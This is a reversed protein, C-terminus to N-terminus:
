KHPRPSHACQAHEAPGRAVVDAMGAAAAVRPAPDRCIIRGPSLAGVGGRRKARPQRPWLERQRSPANYCPHARSPARHGPSPEQPAGAARQSECPHHGTCGGRACQQQRQQRARCGLTHWWARPRRRGDGPASRTARGGARGGAPRRLPAAHRARGEVQHAGKDVGGRPGDLGGVVGGAAAGTAPAAGGAAVAARRGPREGYHRPPADRALLARRPRTPGKGRVEGPRPRDPVGLRTARSARGWAGRNPDRPEHFFFATPSPQAHALQTLGTKHVVSLRKTREGHCTHSQSPWLEDAGEREQGGSSCFTARASADARMLQKTEIRTYLRFGECRKCAVKGLGGAGALWTQRSNTLRSRRQQVNGAIPCPSPLPARATPGTQHAAAVGEAARGPAGPRVAARRPSAGLIILHKCGCSRRPAARACSRARASRSTGVCGGRGGAGRGGERV